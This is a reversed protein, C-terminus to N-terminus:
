GSAGGRVSVTSLTLSRGVRVVVVDGQNVSIAHTEYSGGQAVPTLLFRVDLPQLTHPLRFTATKAPEVTGLRDVESGSVLKVRVPMAYTSHVRVLIPEHRSTAAAGVTGPTGPSPGSGAGEAATGACAAAGTLAVAACAATVIRRTNM